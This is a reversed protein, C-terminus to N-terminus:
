QQRAHRERRARNAAAQYMASLRDAVDPDMTFTGFPPPETVVYGDQTGVKVLREGQFARVPVQWPYRDADTPSNVM